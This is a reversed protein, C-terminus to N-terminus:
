QNLASSRHRHPMNECRIDRGFYHSSIKSYTGDQMLASLAANINNRLALDDKNVAMAIMEPFLTDGLTLKENKDAALSAVAEFRDTVWADVEGNSLAHMAHQEDPYTKIAKIRSLKKLREYYTTGSSVGITQDVLAKTSNPGGVRSVIVAGSCYHPKIFEIQKAREPTIAHSAAVLEFRHNMLDPILKDFAETSWEIKVGLKRGIANVLEVEFGTLKGKSRFNFPRFSGQTAVHLTGTQKIEDWNAAKASSTGFLIIIAALLPKLAGM